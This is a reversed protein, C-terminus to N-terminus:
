KSELASSQPLTSSSSSRPISCLPSVKMGPTHTTLLNGAAISAIRPPTATAATARSGTPPQLPPPPLPSLPPPNVRSLSSLLSAPLLPAIRLSLAEQSIFGGGAHTYGRAKQEGEEGGVNLVGPPSFSSCSSSTSAGGTISMACGPTRVVSASAKAPACPPCVILSPSVCVPTRPSPTLISSGLNPPPPGALALSETSPAGSALLGLRTTMATPGSPPQVSYSRPTISRAPKVGNARPLRVKAVSTAHMANTAATLSLVADHHARWRPQALCDEIETM